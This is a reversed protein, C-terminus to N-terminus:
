SSVKKAEEFCDERWVCALQDCIGQCATAYCDFLGEARQITHILDTKNLKGPKIGKQIAITRIRTLNM